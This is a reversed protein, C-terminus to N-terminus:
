LDELHAAVWANYANLLAITVVGPKGDGLVHKDIEVVPVIGRSSSTIFAETIHTLDRINAAERKMPVIDPAVEFVIQQAIGPLIGEGATH